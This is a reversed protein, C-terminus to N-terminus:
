RIGESFRQGVSHLRGAHEQEGADYRAAAARLGNATSAARDHGTQALETSLDSLLDMADQLPSLLGTFGEKNCGQEVAQKRVTTWIDNWGIQDEL